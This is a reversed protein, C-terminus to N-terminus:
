SYDSTLILIIAGEPLGSFKEKVRQIAPFQAQLATASRQAGSVAPDYYVATSLISGDFIGGDSATWGGARLQSLAKAIGSATSTNNLV